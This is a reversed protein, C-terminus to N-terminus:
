KDEDDYDNDEEVMYEKLSKKLNSDTAGLEQLEDDGLMDVMVSVLNDAAEQRDKQPIYQKLITYAESLVEIDISM